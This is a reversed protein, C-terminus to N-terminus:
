QNHVEWKESSENLRKRYRAHYETVKERHVNKELINM